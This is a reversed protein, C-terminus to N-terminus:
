LMDGPRVRRHMGEFRGILKAKKMESQQIIGMLEGVGSAPCPESQIIQIEPQSIRLCIIVLRPFINLLQFLSCTGRHATGEEELIVVQPQYTAITKLLDPQKDDFVRLEFSEQSEQLRSVIGDVLLSHDTLIAIRSDM